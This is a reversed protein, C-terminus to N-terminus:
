CDGDDVRASHTTKGLAHPPQFLGVLDIGPHNGPVGFDFATARPRLGRGRLLMQASQHGAQPLEGLQAGCLAVLLTEDGVGGHLAIKFLQQGQQLSLHPFQLLGNGIQQRLIRQPALQILGEARDFTHGSIPV